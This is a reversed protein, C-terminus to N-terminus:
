RFATCNARLARWLELAAAGMWGEDGRRPAYKFYLAEESYIFPRIPRLTVNAIDTIISPMKSFFALLATCYRKSTHTILPTWATHPKSVNNLFAAVERTAFEFIRDKHPHNM